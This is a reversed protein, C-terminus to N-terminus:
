TGAPLFCTVLDVFRRRIPAALKKTDIRAAEKRTAPTVKPRNLAVVGDVALVSVVPVTVSVLPDVVVHGTDFM